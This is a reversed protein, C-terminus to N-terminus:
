NVDSVAEDPMFFIPRHYPRIVSYYRVMFAMAILVYGNSIRHISIVSVFMAIVFMSIHKTEMAVVAFFGCILMWVITQSEM